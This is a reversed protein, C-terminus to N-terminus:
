TGDQLLFRYEAAAWEGAYDVGIRRTRVIAAPETVRGRDEIWLGSDPVAPRHNFREKDIDLFRTLRGPGSVGEVGRLLIAAPYDVPGTVINLMEHMGYILYVYWIGAPGFMVGNRKTRGKYAHSARDEFGDYAEVETIMSAQEGRGTRRLLYKGPLDAAVELTPRDFFEKGLVKNMM